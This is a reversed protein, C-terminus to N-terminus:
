AYNGLIRSVRGPLSRNAAEDHPWWAWEWGNELRRSPKRTFNFTDTSWCEALTDWVAWRWPDWSYSFPFRDKWCSGQGPGLVVSAGWKVFNWQYLWEWKEKNWFGGTVVAQKEMPVFLLWCVNRGEEVVWIMNRERGRLYNWRKEWFVRSTCKYLQLVCESTKELVFM